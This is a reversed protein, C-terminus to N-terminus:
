AAYNCNGVLPTPPLNSADLRAVFRGENIGQNIWSCPLDTVDPLGILREFPEATMQGFRIFLLVV